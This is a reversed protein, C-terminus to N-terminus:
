TRAPRLFSWVRLNTGSVDVQEMTKFGYHEYLGVNSPTMTETYAAVQESDAKQLFPRILQSALGQGQAEPAVSITNLYYHPGSVYQSHMREFEGFVTRARLGQILFSSFVLRVLDFSLFAAPNAKQGPASWVAVGQLPDGVGYAQQTRIGFGIFVRAFHVLNAARKQADPYLYAWLPDTHFASAQVSCAREFDAATLLRLQSNTDHM